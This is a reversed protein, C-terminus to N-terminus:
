GRRDQVEEWVLGDDYGKWEGWVVGEVEIAGEVVVGETGGVPKSCGKEFNIIQM